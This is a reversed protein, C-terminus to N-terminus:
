PISCHLTDDGQKYIMYQFFFQFMEDTTKMSHFGDGEKVEIPPYNPNYLNKSTNNYTGIAVILSNRPIVVPKKYIYYYQWNFNWRPIKVLPITDKFPTIAFTIFSQGLLHMHPNVALISIDAPILLTTTFTQITNPSIVLPPQIKSMGNTGMQGEYVYREPRNPAFYVNLYSSDYCARHTPGYHIDNIFFVGKKPLFFGGINNKYFLPLFGPLYYITNPILLPLLNKPSQNKTDLYTLGMTKYTQIYNEIPEEAYTSGQYYNFKRKEDYRLLHGNVHHIIKKQHPVFEVYQVFTDKDLQYPMKVVFFHDSGNGNIYVPKQFYIVLDPKRYNIKKSWETTNIKTTDGAPCHNKIWSIIKEKEEKTLVLENAFRSYSTDAPWPPMINNEIVFRIKNAHQKIDSYTLLSFPGAQEPRHCVACKQHVIPAIDQYNAKENKNSYNCSNFIFYFLFFLYFLPIRRSVM